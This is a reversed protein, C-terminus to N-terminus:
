RASCTSRIADLSRAACLCAERGSRISGLLAGTMAGLMEASLQADRTGAAHALGAALAAAARSSDPSGACLHQQTRRLADDLIVDVQQSVAGPGARGAGTLVRRLNFRLDDVADAPDAGQRYAGQFATLFDRSAITRCIAADSSACPVPPQAAAAEALLVAVAGAIRAAHQAAKVSPGFQRDLPSRQPRALSRPVTFAAQRLDV